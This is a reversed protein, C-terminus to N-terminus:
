RAGKMTENLLRQKGSFATASQCAASSAWCPAMTVAYKAAEAAKVSMSCHACGDGAPSGSYATHADRASSRRHGRRQIALDYQGTARGSRRTRVVEHEDLRRHRPGAVALHETPRDVEREIRVHAAAHALSARVRLRDVEALHHHAAGDALHDLRAVRGELGAVEDDAVIAPLAVRHRGAGPHPREIGRLRRDPRREANEAQGPRGGVELVDAPGDQVGHEAQDVGARADRETAEDALVIRRLRHAPGVQPWNEDVADAHAAEDDGIVGVTLGIEQRLHRAPHPLGADAITLVDDIPELLRRAREDAQEL